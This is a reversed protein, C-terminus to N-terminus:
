EPQQDATLITIEARRNQMRGAATRNDAVPFDEGLGRIIIREPSIGEAQLQRAVAEARRMGLSLNYARSGISDTFGEVLVQREPNDKLFISVQKLHNIDDASLQAQDFGFVPEPPTEMGRNRAARYARLEEEDVLRNLAAVMRDREKALQATEMRSQEQASQVRALEINRQAIYAFHLQEEWTRAMQSRELAIAADGLTAPANRVVDPEDLAESYAQRAQALERSTACGGAIIGVSLLIALISFPKM